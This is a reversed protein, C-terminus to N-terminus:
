KKEKWKGENKMENIKPKPVSKSALNRKQEEKCLEQHGVIIKCKGDEKTQFCEQNKHLPFVSTLKALQSTHDDRPHLIADPLHQIANYLLM